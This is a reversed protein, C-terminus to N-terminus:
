LGLKKMAFEKAAEGVFDEWSSYSSHQQIFADLSSDDIAQYGEPSTVGAAEMLDDYSRFTTARQVFSDTLIEHLDVKPEDTLGEAAEIFHNLKNNLEKLGKFEM